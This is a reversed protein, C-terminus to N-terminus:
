AALNTGGAPPCDPGRGRRSAIQVTLEAGLLIIQATLYFWTLLGIVAALSGYVLNLRTFTALYWAFVQKALEWTLGAAVAAPWADAFAVRRSPLKWYLALYLILTVLISALMPLFRSLVGPRAQPGLVSEEARRIVEFLAPSFTSALFVIGLVVVLVLSLLRHLHVPRQGRCGWARDMVTLLAGFLGSGSWILGLLAILGIPGRQALVQNINDAIIRELGPLARAAFAIAAQQARDTQLFLSGFAVLTLVLPFAAFLFFFAMAGSVYVGDHANYSDLTAKLLGPVGALRRDLRAASGGLTRSWRLATASARGQAKELLWRLRLLVHGARVRWCGFLGRIRDLLRM